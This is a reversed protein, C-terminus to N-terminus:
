RCRGGREQEQEQRKEREEEPLSRGKARENQDNGDSGEQRRQEREMERDAWNGNALVQGDDRGREGHVTGQSRAIEAPSPPAQGAATGHVNGRAAPQGHVGGSRGIEAPSLVAESRSAAVEGQTPNLPAGPEHGREAQGFFVEMITSRVDKIAERAIAPVTGDRTVAQSAAALKEGAPKFMREQFEAEGAM